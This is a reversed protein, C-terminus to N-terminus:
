VPGTHLSSYRTVASVYTHTHTHTTVGQLCACIHVQGIVDSVRRQVFSGESAPLYGWVDTQVEKRRQEEQRKRSQITKQVREYM